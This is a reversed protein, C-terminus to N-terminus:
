EVKKNLGLIRINENNTLKIVNNGTGIEFDSLRRATLFAGNNSNLIGTIDFIMTLVETGIYDVDYFSTRFRLNFWDILGSTLWVQQVDYVIRNEFITEYIPDFMLNPIKVLRAENEEFWASDIEYFNVMEFTDIQLGCAFPGGPDIEPIFELMGNFENLKGILNTIGDGEFYPESILADPDDILIAGTSDQIFKQNRYNQTFTVVAQGTYKYVQGTEKKRLESLNAVETIPTENLLDVRIVNSNESTGLNNSARIRYFYTLLGLNNVEILTTDGVGLNQYGPIYSGALISKNVNHSGLNSFDDKQFTTWENINWTLNGSTIESNRVFTQDKAFDTGGSLGFHDILTGDLKVLRVQDNGNFNILWGNQLDTTKKIADGASTHCVIFVDNNQLIGTLIVETSYDNNGNVDKQLKFESLDVPEGTGNYLEIAKNYSSGEIYESIFIGSTKTGNETFLSDRAVDIFYNTAFASTDWNAIFSSNTHGTSKLAVPAPPIQVIFPATTQVEILQFGDTKFDIDTLENSFPFVALKYNTEPSCNTFVFTTTGAPVKVQGSGDSLDFDSDIPDFSDIPPIIEFTDAIILYGNPLNGEDNEVWSIEFSNQTVNEISVTLDSVHNSPEPLITEVVSKLYFPKSELKYNRTIEHGAIELTLQSFDVDFDNNQFDFVVTANTSNHYNVSEIELGPPANKLIFSSAPLTGDVFATFVLGINVEAGHLSDECITDSKVTLYALPPDATKVHIIDSSVTTEYESQARLRYYYDSLAYLRSVEFQTTKGVDFQYFGNVFINPISNDIIHSGLYGFLDKPLKKWEDVRYSASASSINKLRVFTLDKNFDFNEPKGFHDIVTSNKVLRLQDNGNFNCIINEINAKKKIASGARSHCLIFTKNNELIGFLAFEHVFNNDGNYDRQIKYERLDIPVGTGNFIEIAKNYSSGEIVESIILGNPNIKTSGEFNPDTSVDILYNTAGPVVNWNAKFNDNKISIAPLAIPIGLPPVTVFYSQEPSNSIANDNDRAQVQYFVEGVKQPPISGIFTDGVSNDMIETNTLNGATTGWKIEASVVHLDDTINAIIVVTEATDPNLPTQIINTILPPPSLYNYTATSVTSSDTGNHSIAKITTTGSIPIPASYNLSLSTPSSKDLTYYITANEATTSLEVNIPFFFDKEPPNFVPAALVTAIGSGSLTLNDIAIDEDGADNNFIIKLDLGSGTEPIAVTFETFVPSIEDGDGDGNFDTDIFAASNYKNGDNEIWLLEQFSSGDISYQFHIYDSSDWDEVGDSADDEALHVSFRIGTKGSIDIGTIDIFLPKTAGEGDIDQAAFYYNGQHNSYDVVSSINTGDTRTFYDGSGDSFEAVSTLYGGPSEFDLTWFEQAIIFTVCSFFLISILLIKKM